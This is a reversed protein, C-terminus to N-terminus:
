REKHSCRTVRHCDNELPRVAAWPYWELPNDRGVDDRVWIQRVEGLFMAHTGLRIESVVECDYHIPVASLRPAWPHRETKLGARAMKDRDVAISTNGSYRVADVMVDHIFPVGCGFRGNRRILDLSARPAYRENIAAYSVCPAIVFPHRSVITTSGCPMLNPVGDDTWTTILGLSSPFFCPWRARDNDVEVQDEPLPPLHRVAMGDQVGDAEFPTTGESPFRYYPTYDKQYRTPVLDHDQTARVARIKTRPKWKPLSRWHIQTRARAIDQRLQIANIELFYVRHSGIDIWPAAYIPLGDFDRGPRALTAEYVMYADSFVPCPNSLASKVQLESSRVRAATMEEPIAAIANMASDLAQGLPLYQVAVSGGSELISMFTKRAHHRESLHQRCFSLAMVYPFRNVISAGVVKELATHEGDTTTVLSIASPFFAPWRSDFALSEASEPMGKVYACHGAVQKWSSGITLDESPWLYRYSEITPDVMKEGSVRGSPSCVSDTGTLM